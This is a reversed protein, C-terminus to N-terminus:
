MQTRHSCKRLFAFSDTVMDTGNGVNVQTTDLITDLIKHQIM